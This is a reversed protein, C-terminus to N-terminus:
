TIGNQRLFPVYRKDVKLIHDKLWSQLFEMLEVSLTGDGAMFQEKLDKVQNVLSTHVKKHNEYEPYKFKKFLREENGFHTETYEILQDLIAGSTSTSKGTKMARHLDNILKILVKHQNDIYDLGVSLNQGWPIFDPTNAALNNAAGNQEKQDPIQFRSVYNQLELSIGTLDGASQKVRNSSQVLERSVDSVGTIDRAINDAAASVQAVNENVEAIGQAAQMINDAIESNTASQEDVATDIDTVINEVKNIVESIQKIETITENTSNQISEIKSRIEGTADATQRALEKIENAVVAFGKGAEGARAAEITANLALLNTQESIETIVETVKSIELAANGLLDVKETSSAALTVANSTVKRAEVTREAIQKGTRTVEEAATAVINVNTAAEESAAAVSNMNSSMQDTSAAVSNSQEATESASSALGDSIMSMENASAALHHMEGTISRVMASIKDAMTNLAEALQGIEDTQRISLRETLNGDAMNSALSVAQKLFSSINRGIFYNFLFGIIIATIALIPILRARFKSSKKLAQDALTTRQEIRDRIEGMITQVKKLAPLTKNSYIKFVNQQYAKSKENGEHNLQKMTLASGHLASHAEELRTLLQGLEPMTKEAINRKESYLWNGLKCKHDDTEVNLATQEPHVLFDAVMARWKLHDVEKQLMLQSLSNLYETRNIQSELNAFGRWSFISIVSMLLLVTGFGIGLKTMLSMNRWRM